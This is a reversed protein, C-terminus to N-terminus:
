KLLQKIILVIFKRLGMTKEIFIIGLPTFIYFIVLNAFFLNGLDGCEEGESLDVLYLIGLIWSSFYSIIAWIVLAYTSLKIKGITGLIYLSEFFENVYQFAYITNAFGLIQNCSSGYYKEDSTFVNLLIMFILDYLIALLLFTLIVTKNPIEEFKAKDKKILSKKLSDFDHALIFPVGIFIYSYLIINNALLLRGLDGCSSTDAIDLAYWVMLLFTISSGGVGLVFIFSNFMDNIKSFVLSSLFFLLFLVVICLLSYLLVLSFELLGTCADYYTENNVFIVLIILFTLIYLPFGYFLSIECFKVFIDWFKILILSLTPHLTSIDLASKIDNDVRETDSQVMASSIM